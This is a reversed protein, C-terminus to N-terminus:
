CSRRLRAALGNMWQFRRIFTGEGKGEAIHRYIKGRKGSPSCINERSASSTPRRRRLLAGRHRSDVTAGCGPIVNRLRDSATRMPRRASGIRSTSRPLLGFAPPISGGNRAPHQDADVHYPKRWSLEAVAKDAAAPTAPPNPVSSSINGTPNNWVACGGRRGFGGHHLRSAPPKAQSAFRDGVGISFSRSNKFFRSMDLANIFILRDRSCNRRSRWCIRWAADAVPGRRRRGARPSRFEADPESGPIPVFQGRAADWKPAKRAAGMGLVLTQEPLPIPTAWELGFTGFHDRHRNSGGTAEPPLKRERALAVLKTM